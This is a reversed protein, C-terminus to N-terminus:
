AGTFGRNLVQRAEQGALGAQFGSLHTAPVECPSLLPKVPRKVSERTTESSIGLITTESSIERSISKTSRWFYVHVEGLNTRSKGPSKGSKKQPQFM